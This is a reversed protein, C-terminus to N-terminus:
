HATIGITVDLASPDCRRARAKANGTASQTTFSLEVEFSERDGGGLVVGAPPWADLTYEHFADVTQPVFIVYQQSPGNSTFSVV